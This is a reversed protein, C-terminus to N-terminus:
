DCNLFQKGKSSEARLLWTQSTAVREVFQKESKVQEMKNDCEQTKM